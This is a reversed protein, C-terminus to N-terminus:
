NQTVSSRRLNGYHVSDSLRWGDENFDFVEAEGDDNGIIHKGDEAVNFM